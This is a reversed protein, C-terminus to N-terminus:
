EAPKNKADVPRADIIKALVPSAAEVLIKAAEIDKPTIISLDDIEEDTWHLAKGLKVM